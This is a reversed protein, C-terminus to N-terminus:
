PEIAASKALAALARELEAPLSARVWLADADAAPRFGLEAAHLFLRHLGLDQLRRNAQADGYKEDGAVAAGLHAAHVRIQHTRGTDLRVDALTCGALLERAQFWTRAPKGLRPDVRVVREGGRLRNKHLPALVEVRRQPLAGVLLAVYRKHVRGERLQAHLWRLTAPKKAILLCGSTDRDLRHVLELSQHPRMARLAEILGLHLGSGGHVALGSPKDIVLLGADEHLVAAGLRERLGASPAAPLAETPRRLPPLRLSDGDELRTTPKVRRGNLRVEGRRLIRYVLDRPTGKLHTLLFNDVRQGQHQAGIRVYEVGSRSEGFPLSSLCSSPPRPDADLPSFPKPKSM